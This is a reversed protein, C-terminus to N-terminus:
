LSFGLSDTGFVAYIAVQVLAYKHKINNVFLLCDLKLRSSFEKHFLVVVKDVVCSM